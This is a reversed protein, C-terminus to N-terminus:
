SPLRSDPGVISQSFPYLCLTVPKGTLIGTVARRIDGSLYFDTFVLGGLSFAKYFCRSYFRRRFLPASKKKSKKQRVSHAIL